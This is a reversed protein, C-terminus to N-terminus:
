VAKHIFKCGIGGSNSGGIRRLIDFGARGTNIRVIFLVDVRGDFVMKTCRKMEKCHLVGLGDSPIKWCFNSLSGLDLRHLM